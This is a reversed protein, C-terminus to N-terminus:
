CRDPAAPAYGAYVVRVKAGCRTPAAQDSEARFTPAPIQAVAQVKPAPAAPQAAPAKTASSAVSVAVPALLAAAVFQLAILPKNM